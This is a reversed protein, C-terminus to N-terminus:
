KERQIKNEETVKFVSLQSQEDQRGALGTVSGRKVM